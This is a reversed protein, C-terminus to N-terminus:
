SNLCHHCSFSAIGIEVKLKVPIVLVCACGSVHTKVCLYAELYVCVVVQIKPFICVYVCVKPLHLDFNLNQCCAVQPIFVSQEWLIWEVSHGNNRRPRPYAVRNVM